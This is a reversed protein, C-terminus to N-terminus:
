LVMAQSFELRFNTTTLDGVTCFLQESNRIQLLLFRISIIRCQPQLPSRMFALTQSEERLDVNFGPTFQTGDGAVTGWADAGTGGKPAPANTAHVM